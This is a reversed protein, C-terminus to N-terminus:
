RTRKCAYSEDINVIECVKDRLSDSARQEDYENYLTDKERFDNLIESDDTSVWFEYSRQVNYGWDRIGESYATGIITGGLMGAAAISLFVAPKKITSLVRRFRGPKSASKAKKGPSDLLDDVSAVSENTEVM